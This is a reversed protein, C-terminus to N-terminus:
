KKAKLGIEVLGGRDTAMSRRGCGAIWIQIDEVPNVVRSFQM